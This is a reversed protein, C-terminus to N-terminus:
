TKKNIIPRIWTDFLTSIAIAGMIQALLALDTPIVQLIFITAAFVGIIDRVRNWGQSLYDELSTEDNRWPSARERYARSESDKYNRQMELYMQKLAEPRDPLDEYSQLQSGTPGAGPVDGLRSNNRRKVAEEAPNFGPSGPSRRQQSPNDSPEDEAETASTDEAM